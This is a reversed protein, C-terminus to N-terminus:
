QRNAMSDTVLSLTIEVRQTSSVGIGREQHSTTTETIAVPVTKSMDYTIKGDTSAGFAGAGSAKTSRNETIQLKGGANSAIRFDADDSLQGNTSAVHWHSNSDLKVPDVFNRGLFRLLALEEENVKKNPDCIVITTGYVVCTAPPSSREERGQESVSVVLGSDPQVSLVDVTITGHDGTSAASDVSNPSAGSDIGSTSQTVNAMMGYSYDYVLHRVVSPTTAAQGLGASAALLVASILFSRAFFKM